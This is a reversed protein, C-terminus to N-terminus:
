MLYQGTCYIVSRHRKPASRLTPWTLSGYKSLSLRLYYPRHYVLAARLYQAKRSKHRSLLADPTCLSPHATHALRRTHGATGVGMPVHGHAPTYYMSKHHLPTSQTCCELHVIIGEARCGQGRGSRNRHEDHASAGEGARMEDRRRPSEAGQDHHPASIFSARQGKKKSSSRLAYRQGFYGRGLSDSAAAASGM